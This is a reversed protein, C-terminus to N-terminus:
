IGPESCLFNTFAPYHCLGQVQFHFLNICIFYIKPRFYFVHALNLTSKILSLLMVQLIGLVSYNTMFCIYFAWFVGLGHFSTEPTSSFHGLLGQWGRATRYRKVRLGSSVVYGRLWKSLTMLGGEISDIFVWFFCNLFLSFCFMIPICLDFYSFFIPSGWRTRFYM